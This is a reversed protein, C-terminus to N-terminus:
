QQDVVLYITIGREKGVVFTVPPLGDHVFNDLYMPEGEIFIHCQFTDNECLITNQSKNVIFSHEGLYKIRCWKNPFWNIEIEQHPQLEDCTIKKKFLIHEQQSPDFESQSKDCFETWDNYGIFKSLINLTSDRTQTNEKLYGWMRKLTTPSVNTRLRLFIAKSLYEFDKPTKFTKGLTEEITNKLISIQVKKRDSM